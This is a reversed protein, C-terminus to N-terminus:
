DALVFQKLECKRHLTRAAGLLNQLGWSRGNNRKWGFQLKTARQLQLDFAHPVSSSQRRGGREFGSGTAAPTPPQIRTLLVQARLLPESSTSSMVTGAISAKRPQQQPQQAPNGAAQFLLFSIAALLHANM